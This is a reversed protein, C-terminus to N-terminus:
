PQGGVNSATNMPAALPPAVEPFDDGSLSQQQGAPMVALRLFVRARDSQDTGGTSAPAKNTDEATQFVLTFPSPDAMTAFDGAPTRHQVMMALLAWNDTFHYTLSQGSLDVNSSASRLLPVLPSNSAWHLTLTVPEGYTWRGVRPKDGSEFSDQGVQLTWQQIQNGNLERSQNVRFEPTFDVAPLAAPKKKDLIAAFFGRAQEMQQLFLHVSQGSAGYQDQTLAQLLLPVDADFLTYFDRISQPDAESGLVAQAPPAFPFHGALERNFIGSLKGYEKVVDFTSLRQCRQLLDHQIDSRVQLFYDSGQAHLPAAACLSDPTIKDMTGIVYAELLSVSNGPRKAQYASMQAGIKEWRLLVNRESPALEAHQTSLFHVLPAAAQNYALMQQRQAGLYSQVDETTQANLIEQTPSADGLWNNYASHPIEYPQGADFAQNLALLLTAAQASSIRHLREYPGAMSMGSFTSLLDSLAPAASAFEEVAPSIDQRLSAGASTASSSRVTEAQVTEDEMAAALRQSAIREFAARMKVPANQLDEQVYHNYADPLAIADQLVPTNWDIQMAPSPPGAIKQASAKAVFPLNMLNDLSIHFNEANSTFELSNGNADVLPGTLTSRQDALSDQLKNFSTQASYPVWQQLYPLLYHSNRLPAITVSYVSGTPAFSEGAVWQLDPAHMAADALHFAQQLALLQEYSVQMQTNVQNLNVSLRQLSQLTPNHEIWAAFFQATLQEMKQSAHQMDPQRYVFPAWTAQQLAEEFYPNRPADMDVNFNKGSIYDELQLISSLGAGGGRKRITEYLKINQELTQMQDVYARLQQYEPESEISLSIPADPNSLAPAQPLPRLNPNTVEAARHELGNNFSELVLVRFAPVMAERISADMPSVWSAPLFLSRFSETRFRAMAYLLDGADEPNSASQIQGSADVSSTNLDHVIRALLPEVNNKAQRLRLYNLTTGLALLLVMAATAVQLAITTRNRVFFHSSIPHAIGREPFIKKVFLDYVFAIRERSGSWAEFMPPLISTAPTNWAHAMVPPPLVEAKPQAAGSGAASATGQGTAQTAKQAATDAESPEAADAALYDGTFYLGRFYFSERYATSRLARGLYMRLPTHLAQLEGPFLFMAQRDATYDREAFLEGQTQEISGRVELFAEDVWGADFAADLNYPSSWGFIDRLREEPLENCFGRFGPIQDCKTVVFYVPLRFGLIQQAQILRDHLLSASRLLAVQDLAEPGTLDGCSLTVILGDLPRQPRHRNLLRLLRKWNGAERGEGSMAWAGATDLVIGDGYFKWGISHEGAFGRGDEELLQRLHSETLLTTKGSEAPGLMLYWPVRYRYDRGSVRFRLQAMAQLFSPALAAQEPQKSPADAAKDAKKKAAAERQQATVIWLVALLLLIALLVMAGALAYLLWSGVPTTVTAAFTM